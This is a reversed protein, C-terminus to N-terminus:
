WYRRWWYEKKWVLIYILIYLVIVGWTSTGSSKINAGPVSAFWNVGVVLIKVAPWIAFATLQGLPRLVLGVITVALGVQMIIPVLGLLVLNAVPAILSIQDFYHWILPLTFLTAAITTEWEKKAKWLIIGAMSAVSLQFGIDEIVLPTVLWMMTAALVLWWGSSSKRGKGKGMVVGASMIASRWVAATMGALFVYGLMCLLVFPIMFRRGWWWIGVAGVWAAVLTLNYGSAALVHTMGVTVFSQQQTKSLGSNGGLVIGGVLAGTGDPLYSQWDNLIRLRLAGLGRFVAIGRALVRVSPKDIRFKKLKGTVAIKDGYGIDLSDPVRFWVRGVRLDSNTGPLNWVRTTIILEDGDSLNPLHAKAWMYRSGAGILLIALVVWRM